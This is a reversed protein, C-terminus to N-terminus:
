SVDYIDDVIETLDDLVDEPNFYCTLNIKVTDEETSVFVLNAIVNM